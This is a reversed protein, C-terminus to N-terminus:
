TCNLKGATASKVTTTMTWGMTKAAGGSGTTATLDNKVGTYEIDNQVNGAASFSTTM